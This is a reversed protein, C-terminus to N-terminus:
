AEVTIRINAPDVGLTKALRRKADAISLPAEEREEGGRADGEEADSSTEIAAIWEPALPVTAIPPFKLGAGAGVHTVPHQGEPLYLSVWVGRGIPISHGAKKRAAYARNFRDRMEDGDIMHVKVFKPNHRDDVSVPVVADVEDLTRWSKDGAIRPFAIWTDQTTRISVIKSKGNKTLRRVSSKGSGQVREVKWGAKELAEVAISFLRAKMTMKEPSGFIDTM